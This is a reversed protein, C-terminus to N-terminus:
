ACGNAYRVHKEHFFKAVHEPSKQFKKMTGRAKSEIEGVSASYGKKAMERKLNGNLYEDPNYEPAYPPLYFVEIWEKRWELWETVITAHHSPLNDVVLLVKRSSDKILRGMFQIFIKANMNEKFFMFRLKGQNTIASIMNIRLKPNGVPLVPTQGIPAYGKVCNSENQCGTEDGWAIEANERKAQEKIAPYEKDLWERIEAPNQKYNRKAPRQASFGWKRLYTGMSQVTLKVGFLCRVLERVRERDWLFGKLKLQQPCKDVIAKQVRKQQEPTLKGSNAPRGMAVARVAPVGGGLYKKWTGSVHGKSCECIEATMKVNIKGNPRLNKKATRIIRLRLNEQEAPSLKRNNIELEKEM